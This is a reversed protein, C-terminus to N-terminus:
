ITYLQSILGMILAIKLRCHALKIFYKKKASYELFHFIEDEDKGAEQLCQCKPSEVNKDDDAATKEWM